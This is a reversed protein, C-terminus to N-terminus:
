EAGTLNIDSIPGVPPVEVRTIRIRMGEGDGDILKVEARRVMRDDPWTVGNLADLASKLFNDADGQRRARHVDVDVEYSAATPRWQSQAVARMAHVRITHEWRKTRPPTFTHAKGYPSRVTRTRQKPVPRGDIWFTLVRSM